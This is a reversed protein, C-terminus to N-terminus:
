RPGTSAGWLAYREPLSSPRTVGVEVHIGSGIVVGPIAANGAAEGVLGQEEPTLYLLGLPANFLPKFITLRAAPDDEATPVLVSRDAVRPLGFFTTYYRYSYFLFLDVDKLGPLSAVLSPSYPGNQEIWTREDEPTHHDRFV